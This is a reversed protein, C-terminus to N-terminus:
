EGQEKLKFRLRDNVMLLEKKDAYLQRILEMKEFLEKDHQKADEVLPVCFNFLDWASIKKMDGVHTKTRWFLDKNEVRTEEPLKEPDDYFIEVIDNRKDDAISNRTKMGLSEMRSKNKDYNNM